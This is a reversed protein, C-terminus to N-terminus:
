DSIEHDKEHRLLKEELSFIGFFSVIFFILCFTNPLYKYESYNEM